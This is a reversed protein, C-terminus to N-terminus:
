NLFVICSLQASFSEGLVQTYIIKLEVCFYCNLLLPGSLETFCVRYISAVWTPASSNGPSTQWSTWLTQGVWESACAEWGAATPHTLTQVLWWCDPSLTTRWFSRVFCLIITSKIRRHILPCNARLVPFQTESSYFM